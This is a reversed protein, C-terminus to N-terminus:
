GFIGALAKGQIQYSSIAREMATFQSTLALTTRTVRAEIRAIDADLDAIRSNLSTKRNVLIGDIGNTYKEVGDAVRAGVGNEATTFLRGLARMDRGLAIELRKDDIEYDGSANTVIGIDTVSTFTGTLDTVETSVLARVDSAITEFTSDADVRRNGDADTMSARVAGLIDNVATVFSKLKEKTGDHDGKLTLTVDGEKKLEIRVGELVSDVSNSRQEVALGDITFSANKAQVVQALALETGEVGFYVESITIADDPAEGVVHGSDHAVLQLFSQTGNNVISADVRAGSLNIRDVVDALTDGGEITVDIPDYGAATITLIGAKVEDLRSTFATSRDKEAVALTGVHIAYDGASVDGTVSATLVEEDSSTATFALVGATEQMDESLTKLASLKSTLDGIDSIQASYGDQKSQLAQVPVRQASAMAEIIAKSDIGSSLGSFNVAM